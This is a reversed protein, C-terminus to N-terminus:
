THMYVCLHSMVYDAICCQSNSKIGLKEKIEIALTKTAEVGHKEMIDLMTYFGKTYGSELPGRILHLLHTVKDSSVSFANIKDCDETNIINETVFYKLLSDIDKVTDCLAAYKSRFLELVDLNDLPPLTIICM